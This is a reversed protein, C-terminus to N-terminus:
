PRWGLLDPRARGPTRGHAGPHNRERLPLHSSAHRSHLAAPAIEALVGTSTNFGPGVPLNHFYTPRLRQGGPCAYSDTAGYRFRSKTFLGEKKMPSRDVPKPVHPAVGGAECAESDDIKYYLKDVVADIKDVALNERTAV